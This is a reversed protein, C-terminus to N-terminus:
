QEEIEVNDGMNLIFKFDLSYIDGNSDMLYEEDDGLGEVQIRNYKKGEHFVVGDDEGGNSVDNGVVATQANNPFNQNGDMQEVLASQDASSSLLNLVGEMGNKNYADIIQYKQVPGLEFAEEGFNTRFQDDNQYLKQFEEEIIKVDEPDEFDIDM